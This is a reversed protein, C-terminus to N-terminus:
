KLWCFGTATNKFSFKLLTNQKEAAAQPNNTQRNYEGPIIGGTNIATNSVKNYLTGNHGTFASANVFLAPNILVINSANVQDYTVTKIGTICDSTSISIATSRKNEARKKKINISHIMKSERSITTSLICESLLRAVSTLLGASLTIMVM